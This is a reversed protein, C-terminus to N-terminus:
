TSQGSTTSTYEKHLVLFLVCYSYHIALMNTTMVMQDIIARLEGIMTSQEENENRLKKNENRSEEIENRLQENEIGKLKTEERSQELQETFYLSSM